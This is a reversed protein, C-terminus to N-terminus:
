GSVGRGEGRVRRPLERQKGLRHADVGASGNKGAGTGAGAAGRGQLAAARRREAARAASGRGTATAGTARPRRRTPTPRPRARGPCPPAPTGRPPSRRPFCCGGRTLQAWFSQLGTHATGPGSQRKRAGGGGAWQKRVSLGVTDATRRSRPCAPQPARSLAPPRGARRKRREAASQEPGQLRKTTAAAAHPSDRSRPSTRVFFLPARPAPASPAVAAARAAAPSRGRRRAPAPTPRLQRPRPARGRLWPGAGAGASRPRSFRCEAFISSPSYHSIRM